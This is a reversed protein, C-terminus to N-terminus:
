RVLWKVVADGYQATTTYFATLDRHASAFAAKARPEHAPGGYHALLSGRAPRWLADFDAASLFAAVRATQAATLLLFPPQGTDTTYVRQGGLVVQAGPGADTHEPPADAYLLQHDHYRADLMEERHRDIRDRVTNWDDDFLRRLWSASNRLAAPPVARLHFYASM